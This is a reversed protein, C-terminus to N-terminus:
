NNKLYANRPENYCMLKVQEVIRKSVEPHKDWAEEFRVWSDQHFPQLLERVGERFAMCLDDYNRSCLENAVESKSKLVFSGEEIVHCMSSRQNTAIVNQNEPHAPNFNKELILGCVAAYPRRCLSAYKEQPITHTRYEHGISNMSYNTVHNQIFNYVTKPKKELKELKKHLKYNTQELDRNMKEQAAFKDEIEEMKTKCRNMKKHKYKAQRTSFFNNCIECKINILCSKYVKKKSFTSCKENTEYCNNMDTSKKDPIEKDPKCKKKCKKRGGNRMTSDLETLMSRTDPCIRKRNLHRLFDTERNTTYFCRDCEYM